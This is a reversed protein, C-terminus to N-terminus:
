KIILLKDSKVLKGDVMIRYFYAGNELQEDNINFRDTNVPLKYAEFIKGTIDTIEISANDSINIKYQLTFNGNSPNPYLKFDSVNNNEIVKTTTDCLVVSIDDIYYYVNNSAGGSVNVTSTNQPLNFNGITIFKEGGSAFFTGSVSMWNSKHSLFNSSSNQIQPTVYDITHGTSSDLLSDLSLYAGLSNIAKKSIDALSTNFSICYQHGSSLPSLLGIELYERYNTTDLNCFIGSYTRGTRALQYGSGNIPVGSGGTSCSDFLDSSCSNLVNGNYIHPQFWPLAYFLTNYSQPCSDHVEFSPNPILNQAYSSIAICLFTFQFIFKFKKM